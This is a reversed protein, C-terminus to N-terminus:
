NSTKRGANYYNRKAEIIASEREHKLERIRQRRETGDFSKDHRVTSIQYSYNNEIDDIKLQLASPTTEINRSRYFPDNFPSYFAGNYPNYFPSYRYGFGPAYYSPSVVIVRARPHYSKPNSKVEAGATVALGLALMIVMIKEM